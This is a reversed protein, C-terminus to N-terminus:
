TAAAATGIERLARGNRDKWELRGNATRGLVVGAATSPSNFLVDRTFRLSEGDVVLAGETVLQARIDVLYPSQEISAVATARASSGAFVVFGDPTEAGEADANPGVAKLRLGLNEGAIQEFARVDLVPFLVLMEDLFADMEAADAESLSPANPANANDVESRGAEHALRVLQSELYRVHAKNLNQDKSTFVVARSWFDKNAQHQDLRKRLVDAEGVYVRQRDAVTDSPGVLVYVGPRTLEERQRAEAYATRPVVFGLGTWNSKEVMWLGDPRGEALFLKISVGRRSPMADIM